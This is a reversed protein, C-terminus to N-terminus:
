HRHQKFLLLRHYEKFCIGKYFIFEGGGRSEISLNFLTINCFIGGHIIIAELFIHLLSKYTKEFRGESLDRSDVILQAFFRNYISAFTM